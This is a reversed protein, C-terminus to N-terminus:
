VAQQEKRPVSSGPSSSERIREPVDGMQGCAAFVVRGGDHQQRIVSKKHHRIHKEKRIKTAYGQNNFVKNSPLHIHTFM